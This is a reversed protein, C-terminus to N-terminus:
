VARLSKPKAKSIVIHEFAKPNEDKTHIFRYNSLCSKLGKGKFLQHAITSEWQTPKEELDWVMKFLKYLCQQYVLGCKLIFKYKEKNKKQLSKLLDSYDVHNFDEDNEIVDEMRVLHLINIVKIDNKYEDKPERNTLLSKIYSISAEKIENAEYLFKGTDPNEIV